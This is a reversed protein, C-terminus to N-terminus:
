LIIGFAVLAYVIASIGVYIASVLVLKAGLNLGFEPLMKRFISGLYWALFAGIMALVTCIFSFLNM